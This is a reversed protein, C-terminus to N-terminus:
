NMDIVLPAPTIDKEFPLVQPRLGLRKELTINRFSRLAMKSHGQSKTEFEVEDGSQTLSILTSNHKSERGPLDAYTYLFDDMSYLIEHQKLVISVSRDTPGVQSFGIREVVGKVQNTM